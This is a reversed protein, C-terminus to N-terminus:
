SSRETRTIREIRRGRSAALQTLAAALGPDRALVIEATTGDVVVLECDTVAVVAAAAVLDFGFLEGAGLEATTVRGREPHEVVLAARGDVVVYLDPPRNSATSASRNPSGTSSVDPVIREGAAFRQHRAADALRGLEAAPLAALLPSISLLERRRDAGVTREGAVTAGDWLYLDQAPSPLPVDLRASWYWVLAALDSRVRPTVTHDDIWVQVEYTMLPDDVATVKVDPPPESLVGPTSRAASLLMDVARSPPNSFAVQVPLTIRHLREPQDYNVVTATALSSNPVVLLDGNRDRLRTSRWNVDVVQGELDDVRIWEGPRFPQDALLLLGSALGSLTSQLALSVILTTVGLAAFANSVSVGWVEDLLLWGAVIVVLLRPLALLLQPPRRRRDDPDRRRFRESLVRLAAVATIAAALVTASALVRTAIADADTLLIRVLVYAVALPLVWTRLLDVPTALPSERQRLRGGLEGALVVLLPVGVILAVMWAIETSGTM